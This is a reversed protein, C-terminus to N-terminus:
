QSNNENKREEAETLKLYLPEVLHCNISRNKNDNLYKIIKLYNPKYSVKNYGECIDEMTIIVYNEKNKINQLLEETKMHQKPLVECMKKDYIATFVYGRRADIAPILYDYNDTSLAMVELSSITKIPINFTWSWTKAITLGVRIGTFSGPGNVAIIEKVDNKDVKAKDLMEKIKVLSFASMDKGLEENIVGLLNQNDIIAAYLFSSSTDIYLTM